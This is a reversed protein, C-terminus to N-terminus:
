SVGNRHEESYGSDHQAKSIDMTSANTTAVAHKGEMVLHCFVELIRQYYSFTSLLCLSHIASRINYIVMLIAAPADNNILQVTIMVVLDAIVAVTAAICSRKILKTLSSKRVRAKDLKRSPTSFTSEQRKYTPTSTTNTTDENSSGKRLSKSTIHNRCLPYVFLALLFIEFVALGVLVLYDRILRSVEENPDTTNKLPSLVCGYPSFQYSAPSTYIYMVSISSAILIILVFYSIYEAWRGSFTSLSVPHSYITHQRYWLFFYKPFSGIYHAINSADVLIECHMEAGPIHRVNFVIETLVLRPIDSFMAVLCITYVLGKNMGSSVSRRKRWSGTACGYAVVCACLYVSLGLIIINVVQCAILETEFMDATQRLTTETTLTTNKM